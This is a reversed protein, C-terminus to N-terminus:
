QPLTSKREDIVITQSWNDHWPIGFASFPEFPVLRIITRLAAMKPTIPEGDLTVARTGTLLKGITKGKMFAEEVFYLGFFIIIAILYIMGTGSAGRGGGLGIIMGVVFMAVYYVIVDVLYNLFRKGPSARELNISLDNLLDTGAPNFNAEQM